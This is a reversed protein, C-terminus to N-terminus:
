FLLPYAHRVRGAASSVMPAAMSTGTLRATACPLQLGAQTGGYASRVSEGPAVLDPKIRGDETPGFSSFAAINAYPSSPPPAPGLLRLLQQPHRQLSRLLAQGTSRSLARPLSVPRTLWPPPRPIDWCEM